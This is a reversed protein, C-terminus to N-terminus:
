LNEVEAVIKLVNMDVNERGYLDLFYDTYKDTKLNYNLSWLVWYIDIHKDGVGSLGLDIFGSFEWDDLMVNPLCFDGHIFTDKKLLKGKEMNDYTDMCQSTPIGNIDLNHLYKLTNALVLCLREPNDLYHLCDEGKVSRTVMYDKDDSIYSVLEPGIGKEEFIKTMKAEKELNGKESMKIYYGLDSYLVKFDPHSSSDYINAGELINHLEKPFDTINIQIKTKQM